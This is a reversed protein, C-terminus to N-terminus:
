GRQIAIDDIAAIYTNIEKKIRELKRKTELQPAQSHLGILFIKKIIRLAEKNYIDSLVDQDLQSADLAAKTLEVQTKPPLCNIHYELGGGLKSRSRTQWNERKAKIKVNQRTSPVGPLGAIEKANFWEKLM